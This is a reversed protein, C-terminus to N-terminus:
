GPPPLNLRDDPREESRKLLEDSRDPRAMPPPILLEDATPTAAAMGPKPPMSKGAEPRLTDRSGCGSLAILAMFTLIATRM